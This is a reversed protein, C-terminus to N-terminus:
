TKNSIRGTIVLLTGIKEIVVDFGAEKLLKVLLKQSQTIDTGSIGLITENIRAEGKYIVFYKMYDQCEEPIEPEVLLMLGDRKLTRYAEKLVALKNGYGSIYALGVFTVIFDLSNNKFPLKRADACIWQAFAGTRIAEAIEEKSIDLAIINDGLIKPVTGSGGAAIDLVLSNSFIRYKNFIKGLDIELPKEIIRKLRWYTEENIEGANRLREIEELVKSKM